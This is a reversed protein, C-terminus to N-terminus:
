LGIGNIRSDNRKVMVPKLISGNEGANEVDIGTGYKRAYTIFPYATVRILDRYFVALEEGSHKRVL